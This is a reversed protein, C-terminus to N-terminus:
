TPAPPSMIPRERVAPFRETLAKWLAQLEPGDAATPPQDLWVPPKGADVHLLYQTRENGIAPITALIEGNREVAYQRQNLIEDLFKERVLVRGSEPDIRYKNAAASLASASPVTGISIGPPNFETELFRIRDHITTLRIGDGGLYPLLSRGDFTMDANLGLVDLLTPSIDELSVPFSYTLPATSPILQNGFSKMGLVVHYQESSFVHTGHGFVESADLIHDREVSQGSVPSTEGLSEGHDSLVVIIANRLAGKSELVGMLKEFQRDVRRTATEYLTRSIAAPDAQETATKAQQDPSDAWTYPWHALTMHVALMTPAEFNVGAEIRDIFTDPDYTTNAARNAYAYPFLREGFPTNVTINVLPTDAFFGLLFDAAGMSPTLTRNFGYSHDLNSFRVEDIAYITQYGNEALVAPLTRGEDILERPLLNVFAGTTHPHRGSLISVWAPFTRALPTYANSFTVAQDLFSDIAPTWHNLKDQIFDARLSDIGILIIHPRDASAAPGRSTATGLVPIAIVAPLCAAAIWTKHSRLFFRGHRIVAVLFICAIATILGGTLLGFISIGLINTAVWHHYFSGLSTRPFQHANAALIWIVLVVLWLTTLTRLSHNSSPWAKLSILALFWCTIALLLHVLILAAAFKLLEHGLYTGWIPQALITNLVTGGLAASGADGIIRLYSGAMFGLSLLLALFIGNM